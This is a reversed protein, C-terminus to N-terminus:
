IVVFKCDGLLRSLVEDEKWGGGFVEHFKVLGVTMASQRQAKTSTTFRTIFGNPEIRISRRKYCKNNVVLYVTGTIAGDSQERGREFFYSHGNHSWGNSSKDQGRDTVQLQVMLADLVNDAKVACSYGM